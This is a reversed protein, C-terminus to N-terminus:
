AQVPVIADIAGLLGALHGHEADQLAMDSATFGFLPNPGTGDCFAMDWVGYKRANIPQERLICMNTHRTDNRLSGCLAVIESQPGELVQVFYRRDFYLFGTIGHRPNNRICARVIDLFEVSHAQITPRSIYILSYLFRMYLSGELAPVNLTPNCYSLEHRSFM